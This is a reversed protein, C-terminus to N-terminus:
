LFCLWDDPVYGDGLKYAVFQAIASKGSDRLVAPSNDKHETALKNKEFVGRLAIWQNQTLGFDTAGKTVKGGKESFTALGSMISWFFQQLGEPDNAPVPFETFATGLKNNNTGKLEISFKEAPATPVDEQREEIEEERRPPFWLGWLGGADRFDQWSINQLSHELAPFFMEKMMSGALALASLLVPVLFPLVWWRLNRWAEMASDRLGWAGLGYQAVVAAPICMGVVAGKPGAKGGIWAGGGVALVVAAWWWWEIAGVRAAWAGAARAAAAWGNSLSGLVVGDLLKGAGLGVALFLFFVIVAAAVDMEYQRAIVATAAVAALVGLAVFAWQQAIVLVLVGIAVVTEGAVLIEHAANKPNGIETEPTANRINRPGQGYGGRFM